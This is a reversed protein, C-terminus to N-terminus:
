SIGSMELILIPAASSNGASRSSKFVGTVKSNNDISANMTLTKNKQWRVSDVPNTPQRMSKNLTKIPLGYAAVAVKIPYKVTHYDAM